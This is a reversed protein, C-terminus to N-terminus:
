VILVSHVWEDGGGVALEDVGHRDHVLPALFNELFAGAVDLGAFLGVKFCYLLRSVTYVILRSFSYYIESRLSRCAGHRGSEKKNLKYNLILIERSFM